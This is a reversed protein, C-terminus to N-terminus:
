SLATSATAPSAGVLGVATSLVAAALEERDPIQDAFSSWATSIGGLVIAARLQDALSADPESLLEALQRLKGRFLEGRKPDHHKSVAAQNQHLMRFVDHGDSLIGVYRRLIEARTQPTGPQQRGWDILDDIQQVYSEILSAVIDDKSKFHYYLAAKTVGLRESIERLSTNDYGQETFLEVAVAQIRARTQLGRAPENM